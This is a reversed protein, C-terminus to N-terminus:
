INVLKDVISMAAFSSLFTPFFLKSTYIQRIFYVLTKIVINLADIQQSQQTCQEDLLELQETRTALEDVLKKNQHEVYALRSQLEVM